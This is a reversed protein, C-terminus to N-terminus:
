GALEPLAVQVKTARGRHVYFARGPPFENRAIRPFATKLIQEGEHQEPQLALGHRQARVAALVPSYAGAAGSEVDAVLFVDHAACAKVLDALASDVFSDLLDTINELVIILGGRGVQEANIEDTLRPVVVNASDVGDSRETWKPMPWLPSRRSGFFVARAAPNARLYSEALAALTSTRGSGPPGFLLLPGTAQVGIVGLTEDAVGLAPQGDVTRPLDALEVREALREVRPAEPRDLTRRIDAALREIARAQIQSNGSGSLVAVQVEEGDYLGRGAPAGLLADSPVDAMAYDQESALRLVLRRQIASALSSPISNARDASVVVHVGVQRGDTAIGNVLDLWRFRDGAEYATRFAAFNDILLLLRPELPENAL